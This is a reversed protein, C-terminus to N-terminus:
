RQIPLCSDRCPSGITSNEGMRGDAQSVLPNRDSNLAVNKLHQISGYWKEVLLMGMMIGRECLHRILQMDELHMMPGMAFVFVVAEDESALDSM